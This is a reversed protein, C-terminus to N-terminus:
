NNGMAHKVLIPAAFAGLNQAADPSDGTILERDQVVAGTETTNMIKVGEKELAEQCKWPMHGPLYGLSPTMADTKDTFCM